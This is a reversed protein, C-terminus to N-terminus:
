IRKRATAIEGELTTIEEALAVAGESSRDAIYTHLDRLMTLRLYPM